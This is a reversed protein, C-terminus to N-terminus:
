RLSVSVLRLHMDADKGGAQSAYPVGGLQPMAPRQPLHLPSNRGSYSIHTTAATPQWLGCIRSQVCREDSPFRFSKSSKWRRPLNWNSVTPIASASSLSGSLHFTECKEM